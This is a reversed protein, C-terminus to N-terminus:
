KETRRETIESEGEEDPECDDSEQKGGFWDLFWKERKINRQEMIECSKKWDIDGEQTRRLEMQGFILFETKAEELSVCLKGLCDWVADALPLPGSSQHDRIGQIIEAFKGM